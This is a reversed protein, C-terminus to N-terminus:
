EVPSSVNSPIEDSMSASRRPKGDLWKYYYFSKTGSPM